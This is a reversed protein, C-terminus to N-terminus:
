AKQFTIVVIEPRNGTRMPPGWSGVGTSTFISYSGDTHLGYDYKKYVLRTIWGFPWLQGKHTHGSLQLNVGAEKFIDRLVPEHYLGILPKSPDSQQLVSKAIAADSRMRYQVGAIQVGDVEVMEDNLMRVRTHSLADLSKQLGLFLEHNGTIGYMGLPPRLDNLPLTLDHVDAGGGDFVDGTIFIIDPNERQTMKILSALFKKRLIPGLHIDSLQVARRGQWSDPLNPVRVTIRTVRLAYANWIGYLSFAVAAHIISMGITATSIEIGLWGGLVVLVWTLMCAIMVYWGIGLWISAGYYLTDTLSNDLMHVFVATLVFSISLVGGVIQIILTVTPSSIDFFNMFSWYLFLHCAILVLAVACLMVIAVLNISFKEPAPTPPVPITRVHMSPSSTNM